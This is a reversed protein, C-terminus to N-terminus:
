AARSWLSRASPETRAACVCAHHAAGGGGGFPQDSTLPSRVVRRSGPPSWAAPSLLLVQPPLPQCEGKELCWLIWCCQHEVVGVARLVVQKVRATRCHGCFCSQKRCPSAHVCSAGGSLGWSVPCCGFAGGSMGLGNRSSPVSGKSEALAPM